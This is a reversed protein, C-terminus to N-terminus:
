KSNRQSKMMKKLKEISLLKEKRHLMAHCNPCVPRLDKIPDLKYEAKKDALPKLHHVHIFEHGIEGYFSEFNFGCVFCNYGYTRLCAKRAEPNREYKTVLIKNPAGEIFYEELDEELIEWFARKQEITEIELNECVKSYIENIRESPTPSKKLISTIKQTTKSGNKNEAVEHDDLNCDKYGVFRSPCFIHQEGYYIYVFKKGRRILKKFYESPNDDSQYEYFRILNDVIQQKTSVLELKM